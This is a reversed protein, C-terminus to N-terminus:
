QDKLIRDAMGHCQQFVLRVERAESQKLEGLRQVWFMFRERSFGDTKVGAAVALEGPGTKGTGWAFIKTTSHSLRLLKHGAYTFWSILMPHFDMITISGASDSSHQYIARPTELAERMIALGCGSFADDRVGLGALRAIASTLNHCQQLNTADDMTEIWASRLDEVLYPLDIWLKGDATVAEQVVVETNGAKSEPWLEGRTKTRSLVGLERAWLVIRVLRDQAPDEADINKALQIYQYWIDHADWEFFQLVDSFQLRFM